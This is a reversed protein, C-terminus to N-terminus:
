AKGKGSGKAFTALINSEFVSTLKNKEEWDSIYLNVLKTVLQKFSVGKAKWLYFALSGPMTNIENFYLKGKGDVMFDVRAIGKGGIAKFFSIAAEEVSKRLDKDIPAPILRKAGAMGKTKGDKRIYKDDFSLVESTGLPQEIESVEYQDNGLVSINLEMKKDLAKEVLVRQAYVFAVELANELEKSNKARSIGISSGLDNPKIFLDSGIKKLRSLVGKRNEEWDNRTVLMDDVVLVGLDKAIKKSLYKDMGVASSTVTCGVYPLGSLELLGQISGDEGNRGHFVPFVIDPQELTGGYGLWGRVLMGVQRDSSVLISKGFKSALNLNKYFNPDLMRNDGLIWSGNKSVYGPLVNFGAEKLANMVQLATVISVEHETSVGGFLVLINKM